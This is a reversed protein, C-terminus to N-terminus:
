LITLCVWASSNNLHAQDNQPAPTELTLYALPPSLFPVVM